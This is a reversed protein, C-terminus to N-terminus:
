SEAHLAVGHSSNSFDEAELVLAAQVVAADGRRGPHRLPGDAIVQAAGVLRAQGPLEGALEVVGRELVLQKAGTPQLSGSSRVGISKAHTRWSIRLVPTVSLTARPAVVEEAGPDLVAYMVPGIDASALEVHMARAM